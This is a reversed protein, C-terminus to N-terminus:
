KKRSELKRKGPWLYRGREEELVVLGDLRGVLDNDIGIKEVKADLLLNVKDAAHHVAQEGLTNGHNGVTDHGLKLLQAGLEANRQPQGAVRADLTQRAAMLTGVRIVANNLTDHLVLAVNHRCVIRVQLPPDALHRTNREHTDARM